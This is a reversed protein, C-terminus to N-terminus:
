RIAISAGAAWALLSEGGHSPLVTARVMPGIAIRAVPPSILDLRTQIGLSSAGAGRYLAPGVLLRASWAALAVDAGALANAVVFNGKPACGGSPRILCRDGFGGVVVGVGAAAIFAAHSASRVPAAVLVDLLGGSRYDIFGGSVTHRAITLDLPATRHTPTDQARAVSPALAAFACAALVFRPPM